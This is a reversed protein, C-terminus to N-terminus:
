CPLGNDTSANIGKILAISKYMFSPYTLSFLLLTFVLTIEVQNREKNEM